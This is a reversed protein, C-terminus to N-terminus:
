DSLKEMFEKRAKCSLVKSDTLKNIIITQLTEKINMNKSKVIQNRQCDKIISEKKWVDEPYNYMNQFFDVSSSITYGLHMYSLVVCHALIKVRAEIRRNLKVMDTDSIWCGFRYFDDESIVVQIFETYKSFKLEEFNKENRQCPKQLHNRVESYLDQDRMLNVPEGYNQILFQKTYPKCFLKFTFSNSMTTFNITHNDCLYCM